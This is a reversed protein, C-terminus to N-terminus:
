RHDILLQRPRPESQRRHQVRDPRLRALTSGALTIRACDSRRFHAQINCLRREPTQPYGPDFLYRATSSQRPKLVLPVINWTALEEHEHESDSVNTLRIDIYLPEGLKIAPTETSIDVAIPPQALGIHGFAGSALTLLLFIRFMGM